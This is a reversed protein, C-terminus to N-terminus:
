TSCFSFVLSSAVAKTLLRPENQSDPAMWLFVFFTLGYKLFFVLQPQEKPLELVLEKGSVARILEEREAKSKSKLHQVVHIDMQNSSITAGVSQLTRTRSRLHRSSVESSPKEAQPIQQVVM